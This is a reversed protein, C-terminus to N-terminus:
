PNPEEVVTHVNLVNGHPDRVDFARHGWLQTTLEQVWDIQMGTLRAYEGEIDETVPKMLVSHHAAGRM